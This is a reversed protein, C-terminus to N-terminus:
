KANYSGPVFHRHIDKYFDLPHEAPEVGAPLPRASFTQFYLLCGDRWERAEREQRALLVKVHTFREADMHSELGDWTRQWSRVSDVGAQYHLCLEDWLSRGSKMRFDWPLHHFWLLFADPCSSPDEWRQAAGPKYQELARSGKSTRDFGLGERDARHYYSCTWDPRPATEVWPGPGYHHAYAMIHHLGLPMSYNVVTERSELLMPKLASVLKEDCPFNQRIWEDAIREPSLSHDWALRGFAYWNASLLPHGCWNRDTGVNAVGAIATLAHKGLSGDIVRAVTSGQGVAWTDSDLTEKWMNALYALHISGGLYEQTIQVELALSTAPMAGFLPHFPERPMFDVPGNKIQIVVNPLFKGDLPTFENFAQRARDETNRSDYVFARWLVIGGHPALARALMNAGDAHTRGYDQPGPEGESNAKVLFGGFDPILRYIEDAKAQWWAQVAPELPDAGKLGGLGVPASFRPCLYVRIGYPRMVDAIAAVKALWDPTLFLANSNVNNLVAGNIGVSACARAYDRYRPNVYDPLEFWEWISQGAFGREMSRDPNDWHNLMRRQIRPASLENVGDLTIGMQIRRLLAFSGYLLGREDAACLLLSRNRGSGSMRLLYGEEGMAGIEPAGPREAPTLESLLALRLSGAAGPRATRLNVGLLGALGDRLETVAAQLTPGQREPLTLGQLQDAYAIRLSDDQLRDYRLWLRYGDDARLFTALSLLAFLLLFPRAKM